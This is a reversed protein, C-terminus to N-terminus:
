SARTLFIQNIEFLIYYFRCYPVSHHMIVHFLCMKLQFFFSTISRLFKHFVQPIKHFANCYFSPLVFYTFFFFEHTQKFSYTYAISESLNKFKEFILVFHILLYRSTFTQINSLFFFVETITCYDCNGTKSFRIFKWSSRYTVFYTAM